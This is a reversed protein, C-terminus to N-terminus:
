EETTKLADLFERIPDVDFDALTFPDERLSSTAPVETATEDAAAFIELQPSSPGDIRVRYTPNTLEAKARDNLYARCKLGSLDSLFREVTETAITQGDATQWEGQAKNDAPQDTAGGEEQATDAPNVKAVRVADGGTEITFASVADTQFALVTKDRLDAVSQDFDNRFNGRAHYVNPDDALAIHTHRMTDAAKGIRFARVVEGDRYATVAIRHPDDLEYRGYSGTQSVLATVELSKLANLMRDVLAPDAPYDGPSVSWGDAARTLVVSQGKHDIEVRTVNEPKM